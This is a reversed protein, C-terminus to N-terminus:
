CYEKMYKDKAIGSVRQLDITETIWDEEQIFISPLLIIPWQCDCWLSFM